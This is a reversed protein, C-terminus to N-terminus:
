RLVQRETPESSIKLLGGRLSVRIVLSSVAAFVPAILAGISFVTLFVLISLFVPVLRPPLHRVTGDGGFVAMARHELIVPVVSSLRESGHLDVGALGSLRERGSRLYIEEILANQDPISPLAPMDISAPYESMEHEPSLSNLFQDVTVEENPVYRLEPYVYSAVRILTSTVGESIRFHALLDEWSKQSAFSYYGSAVAISLAVILFTQAMGISRYFHLRLRDDIDSKVARLGFWALLGAICAAFVYQWSQFFVFGPLFLMFSGVVHCVSRQWIVTGVLFCLSSVSFWALIRWAYGSEAVSMDIFFAQWAMLSCIGTMLAMFMGFVQRQMSITM